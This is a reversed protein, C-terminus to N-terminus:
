AGAARTCIAPQFLGFAVLFYDDTWARANGTKRLELWNDDGAQSWGSRGTFDGPGVAVLEGRTNHHPGLLNRLSGVLEVELLNEGEQVHETLEARYPHWVIDACSYGNLRVKAVIADLRDLEFFVRQGPQPAKITVRQNLIV